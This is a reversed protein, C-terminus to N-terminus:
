KIVKEWPKSLDTGDVSEKQTIKEGTQFLNKSRYM